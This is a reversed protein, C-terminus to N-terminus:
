PNSYRIRHCLVGRGDRSLQSMLEPLAEFASEGTILLDLRPDRLLDLALRMRGAHTWRPAREPPIRGVQSSKLTL